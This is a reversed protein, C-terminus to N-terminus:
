DVPYAAHETIYIFLNWQEKLSIMSIHSMKAIQPQEGHNSSKLTNISLNGNVAELVGKTSSIRM